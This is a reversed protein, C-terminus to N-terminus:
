KRELCIDFAFAARAELRYRFKRILNPCAFTRRSLPAKEPQYAAFQCM